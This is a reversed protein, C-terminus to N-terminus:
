AGGKVGDRHPMRERRRIELITERTGAASQRALEATLDAPITVTKGPSAAAEAMLTHLRETTFSNSQMLPEVPHKM